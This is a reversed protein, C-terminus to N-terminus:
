ERARKRRVAAVALALLGIALGYTSPEPVPTWQLFVGSDVGNSGLINWRGADLGLQTTNNAFRLQGTIAVDEGLRVFQFTRQASWFPDEYAFGEPAVITLQAGAAIALTGGNIDIADYDNGRGVEFFFEDAYSEVASTFEWETVSTSGLALGDEYAMLGPSNGPALTGGVSVAGMFTASGTLASGSEVQINGYVTDIPLYGDVNLTAGSTVTVTGTYGATSLGGLTGGGFTIDRTFGSGIIASAGVGLQVTGAGIGAGLTIGTGTVVLNGTFNSGVISGGSYTVNGSFVRDGFNLTGGTAVGLVVGEPLPITSVDLTGSGASLTGSGTLFAGEALTLANSFARGNLDLTAGAAVSIGATGLANDATLRATGALVSVTGSFSGTTGLLLVGSGSKSLIGAGSLVGGLTHETAVDLVRRLEATM